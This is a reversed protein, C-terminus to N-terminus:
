DAHIPSCFGQGLKCSNWSIHCAITSSHPSLYSSLSHSAFGPAAHVELFSAMTWSFFSLFFLGASMISFWFSLRYASFIVSSSFSNFLLGHLFHPFHHFCRFTRSYSFHLYPGFFLFRLPAHHLIAYRSTGFYAHFHILSFCSTPGQGYPSM